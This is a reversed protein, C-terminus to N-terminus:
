YILMSYKNMEGDIEDKVDPYKSFVYDLLELGIDASISAIKKSLLKQLVKLLCLFASTLANPEFRADAGGHRAISIM